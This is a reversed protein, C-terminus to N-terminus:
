NMINLGHIVLLVFLHLLLLLHMASITVSSKCSLGPHKTITLQLYCVCVCLSFSLILKKRYLYDWDHDLSGELAIKIIPTSQNM